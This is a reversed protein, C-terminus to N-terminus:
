LVQILTSILMSCNHEIDFLSKIDDPVYELIFGLYGGRVQRIVLNKFTKGSFIENSAFTYSYSISDLQLVKM